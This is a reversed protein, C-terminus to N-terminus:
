YLIVSSKTTKIEIFLVNCYPLTGNGGLLSSVSLCCKALFDYDSAVDM